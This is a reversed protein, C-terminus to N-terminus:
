CLLGVGAVEQLREDGPMSAVLMTRIRGVRCPFAAGRSLHAMTRLQLAREGKFFVRADTQLPRFCVEAFREYTFERQPPNLKLAPLSGVDSGDRLWAVTYRRKRRTPVGLSCSDFVWSADEYSPLRRKLEQVDFKSVIEHTLLDPQVGEMM